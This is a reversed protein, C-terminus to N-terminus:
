ICALEEAFRRQPATGVNTSRINIFYVFSIVYLAIWKKLYLNLRLLFYKTHHECPIRGMKASLM